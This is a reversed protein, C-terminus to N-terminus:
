RPDLRYFSVASDVAISHKMEETLDTREWFEDIEHIISSDPKEHPYDSPFLIRGAPFRQVVLPLSAEDLECSVYVNGRAIYDSPARRVGRAEAQARYAGEWEYDLRDMMYLMWGSGAELFAVRLDPFRELAGDLVFSTLQIIQSVPHSLAHTKIMNDFYDFGLGRSPAGHVALACGLRQAEAYIPDFWEDGLPRGVVHVAPLLGGALGLKTVARRLEDVAAPIDQVPLLALSHFRPSARVYTDSIWDNYAKALVTAWERNQVLGISLGGTPYLVTEDLHARDLFELWREPSTAITKGRGGGRPFGDLSPFMGYVAPGDYAPAYHRIRERLADVDEYIHGDADIARGSAHPM